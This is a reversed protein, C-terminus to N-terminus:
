RVSCNRCLAIAMDVRDGRGKEKWENVWEERGGKRRVIVVGGNVGDERTRSEGARGGGMVVRRMGGGRGRVKGRSSNLGSSIDGQTRRM